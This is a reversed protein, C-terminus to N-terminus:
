QAQCSDDTSGNLRFVLDDRGIKLGALKDPAESDEGSYGGALLMATKSDNRRLRFAEGCRFQYEDAFCEVTEKGTRGDRLTVSLGANFVTSQYGYEDTEIKPGGSVTLAISKVKQQPHKALHAADYDRSLCNWKSDGLRERLPMEDKVFAPRVALDDALCAEPPQAVLTMSTGAEEGTLWRSKGTDDPEGCSANLSLGNGKEFSINIGEAVPHVVFSGGDCDVGCRLQDSAEGDYCSLGQDFVGDHGKLRVVVNAWNVADPRKDYAVEEAATMEIDEKAPNPRLLRYLQFSQVLQGKELTDFTARYCREEGQPFVALTRPGINSEAQALAATPLLLAALVTMRFMSSEMLKM